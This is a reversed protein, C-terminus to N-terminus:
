GNKAFNTWIKMMQESFQRDTLHLNLLLPKGFVYGNEAGHCVGMDKRCGMLHGMEVSLHTWYFFFANRKPTYESFAKVFHFAPCAIHLDGFFDWFAKKLAETSNTDVGKLYFEATENVQLDPFLLVKINNLSVKFDEVNKLGEAFNGALNSGENRM